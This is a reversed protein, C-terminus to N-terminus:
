KDITIETTLTKSFLDALNKKIAFVFLLLFASVALTQLQYGLTWFGGYQKTIEQPATAPSFLCWYYIVTLTTTGAIMVILFLTNLIEFLYYFFVRASGPAFIPIEKTM